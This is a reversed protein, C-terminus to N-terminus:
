RQTPRYSPEGPSDSVTNGRLIGVPCSERNTPRVEGMPYAMPEQRSEIETGQSARIRRDPENLPVAPRWPYSTGGVAILEATSGRDGRLAAALTGM